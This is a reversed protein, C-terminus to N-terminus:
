GERDLFRGLTFEVSRPSYPRSASHPCNTLEGVKVETSSVYMDVRLFPFPHSLKAAIELMKELQPPKPDNESRSEFGVSYQLRNWATDYFHQLHTEYRDLDIQILQPTGGFCLIKYDPAPNKGDDTIFEEIIVKPTLYKYNQERTNRYYDYRLWAKLLDRNLLDDPTMQLLVRGSAHTPKIVCPFQSLQLYDVEDESHLVGYTEVTHQHGAQMAVYLKVYEKDSIFQRLPDLLTGDTKIKFLHDNFRIPSTKLDPSRGHAIRFKLTACIRDAWANYPLIRRLIAWALRRWKLRVALRTAKGLSSM